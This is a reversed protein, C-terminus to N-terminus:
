KISVVEGSPGAASPELRSIPLLSAAASPPPAIYLTVDREYDYAAVLQRALHPPLKVLTPVPSLAPLTVRWKTATGRKAKRHSRTSRIM